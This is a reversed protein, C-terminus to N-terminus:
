AEEANVPSGAADSAGEDNLMRIMIKRYERFGARREWAKESRTTTMTLAIAGHAKGWQILLDIGLQLADGVNGDARCQSIFVIKQGDDTTQVTAAAHGSVAGKEDVYALLLTGVDQSWLRVMFNRVVLEANLEPSLTRSFELMRATLQPILLGVIPHYPDVRIVRM